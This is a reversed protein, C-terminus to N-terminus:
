PLPAPSDAQQRLWAILNARDQAGKIGAFNMKTGPAYGKPSALFANLDEYAWAGGKGKLADSYAFGAVQAKQGGVVNWLNPGVKNAGGKEFSHCAACAKSGKQGAAADAAALLPTVPEPAAPAAPAAGAAPAEEAVEVKYANEALQHPHVLRKSVFGALLALLMAGLVAMSVKNFFSGAM